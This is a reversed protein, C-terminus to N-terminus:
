TSRMRLPSFGPSRGTCAGALYSRTMLRLVALASPRSTGSVSSARASSTISHFTAIEDCQEADRRRPRKGRARLLALSHPADSYQLPKGFIIRFPLAPEGRELLAQLFQSPGLPAVNGEFKAKGIVLGVPSAASSTCAFTSTITVFAACGTSAARLAVLLMGMTM